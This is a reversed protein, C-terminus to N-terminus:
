GVGVAVSLQVCSMWTLQLGGDPELKGVPVVVTVQVAVSAELLVLVHVKVTVTTVASQVSVQGGSVVSDALLPHLLTTM